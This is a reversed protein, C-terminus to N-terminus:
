NNTVINSSRVVKRRRKQEVRMGRREKTQNRVPLPSFSSSLERLERALGALESEQRALQAHEIRRVIATYRNRPM